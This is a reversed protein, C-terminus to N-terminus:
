CGNRSLSLETISYFGATCTHCNAAISCSPFIYRWWGIPSCIHNHGREWMYSTPIRNSGGPTWVHVVRARGPLQARSRHHRELQRRGCGACGDPCTLGCTIGHACAYDPLTKRSVLQDSSFLCCSTVSLMHSAPQETCRPEYLDAVLIVTYSSM